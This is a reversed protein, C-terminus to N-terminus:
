GACKNLFDLIDRFVEERCTENFLEHRAGEYLKLSLDTCGAVLLHKYVYKVGKGYQGVPDMDGSMILTRLSKPYANFWKKSNSAMIMRFLEQYGELTFIFNTYKDDNRGSVLAVDRTLWAFEGESKDFKSNYGAFALNAIFKSRYHKGRFLAIISILTKGLPLMLKHPGGTGHIIHGVVTHPYRQCYLRSLFSGMSHGMLVVPLSPFRERIIRNMQHMDRLLCLIGDKQAFFGFDEDTSATKGHGLHHNGALAYGNACLYDALALYRETHDIMGHSLQLVGRIEGAAPTYIVGYVRSKGDSSPYTVEYKVYNM